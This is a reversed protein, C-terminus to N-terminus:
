KLEFNCACWCSIFNEADAAAAAAAADTFNEKKQLNSGVKFNSTV